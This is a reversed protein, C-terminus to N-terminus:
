FPSDLILIFDKAENVDVFLSTFKAQELDDKGWHHPVNFIIVTISVVGWFGLFSSIPVNVKVFAWFSYRRQFGMKSSVIESLHMIVEKGTLCDRAIVSRGDDARKLEFSGLVSCKSLVCMRPLTESPRIISHSLCLCFCTVSRKSKSWWM